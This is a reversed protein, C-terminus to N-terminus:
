TTENTKYRAIEKMLLAVKKIDKIGPASEVGSAVDIGFPVYNSLLKGVNEPSIGGAVFFNKKLDAFQGILKWDFMKGTGGFAASDFVDFLFYDAADYGQIAIVGTRIRFAKILILGPHNKKLVECLEPPEDGHLQVGEIGTGEIVSEVYERAPNVFVGIRLIGQGPNGVVPKWHERALFRPSGSFFNFGFFDVGLARCAIVDERRTFGCVKVKM